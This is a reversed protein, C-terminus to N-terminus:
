PKRITRIYMYLTSHQICCRIYASCNSQAYMYQINVATERRICWPLQFSSKPPQLSLSFYPVVSMDNEYYRKVINNTCYSFTILNYGHHCPNSSKWIYWTSINFWKSIDYVNIKYILYPWKFSIWFLLLALYM